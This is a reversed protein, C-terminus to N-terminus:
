GISLMLETVLADARQFADGMQVIAHTDRKIARRYEQAASSYAQGADDHQSAALAESVDACHSFTTKGYGLAGAALRSALQATAEPNSTIQGSM